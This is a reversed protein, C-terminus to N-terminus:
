LIIYCMQREYLSHGSVWLYVFAYRIGYLKCIFRSDRLLSVRPMKKCLAWVSAFITHYRRILKAERPNPERAVDSVSLRQLLNDFIWCTNTPSWLTRLIISFKNWTAPVMTVYSSTSTCNLVVCCLSTDFLVTHSTFYGRKWVDKSASVLFKM